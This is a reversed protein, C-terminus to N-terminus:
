DNRKKYERWISQDGKEGRLESKEEQGGGGAGVRDSEKREM